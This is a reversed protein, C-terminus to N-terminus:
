PLRSAAKQYANKFEDLAADMGAKMANWKADTSARLRNLQARAAEKKREVEDLSQQLDARTAASADRAKEQLASIQKQIAALEEQAKRQFAEKQQVTYEKTADLTERAEKTIQETGAVADGAPGFVLVIGLFVTMLFYWRWHREM